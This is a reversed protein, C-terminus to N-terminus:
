GSALATALEGEVREIEPQLGPKHKIKKARKLIDQASELDKRELAVIALNLTAICIDNSTRLGLSLATNFHEEAADLQQKNLAICGATFHYYSRQSKSLLAPKRVKLLHKEAQQVNGKRLQRFAIYVTGNRFYGSIVLAVVGLMLYCSTMKGQSYSYYAMLLATVGLLIRVIPSYM